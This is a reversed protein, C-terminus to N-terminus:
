LNGLEIRAEDDWNRPIIEEVLYALSCASENNTDFKVALEYYRGFDHEHGRNCLSFGSSWSEKPYGKQALLREIQHRYAQREKASREPYDPSGVQACDEDYPVPGLEIYEFM